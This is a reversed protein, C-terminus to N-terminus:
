GGLESKVVDYLIALGGAMIALVVILWALCACGRDVWKAKDRDMRVSERARARVCPRM